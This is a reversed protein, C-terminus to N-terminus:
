TYIWSTVYSWIADFFYLLLAIIITTITVVVTASKTEDWKPWVVKRLEQVIETGLTHWREERYAWVTAVLCVLWAFATTLTVKPGLLAYDYQTLRALGVTAALAKSLVIAALVGLAVFGLTVWRTAGM